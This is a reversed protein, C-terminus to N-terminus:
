AVLTQTQALASDVDRKMLITILLLNDVIAKIRELNYTRTDKYLYKEMYKLVPESYTKRHFQTCEYLYKIRQLVVYMAHTSPIHRGLLTSALAMGLYSYYSEPLYVHQCITRDPSMVSAPIEGREAMDLFFNGALDNLRFTENNGVVLYIHCM